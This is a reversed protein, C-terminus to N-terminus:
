EALGPELLIRPLKFSVAERVTEAEELQIEFRQALADLVGKVLMEPASAGATVGVVGVGRLWSWDIDFADDILQAARAGARKAVEVLRLSNSSSKSGVVLVLDCQGAMRKIAEQRNTTAYCIDEKVPAEIAPFRAQLVAVIEACDDLSLTTQTVFGLREPDQPQFARADEVTEILTVAGPPLQGMTGIVEPHGAHGILLVHLGEDHRREAEAPVSKPVGHASFVLPRDSPCDEVQEIFVAGMRRLREVVYGNHVIEHRVYVPAGYKLLAQEVIQIARDVGACFSRPSALLVELAPHDNPPASM